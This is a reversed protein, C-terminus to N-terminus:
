YRRRNPTNSKHKTIKKGTDTRQRRAHGHKFNMPNLSMSWEKEKLPPLEGREIYKPVQSRAM